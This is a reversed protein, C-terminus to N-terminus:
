LMEVRASTGRATWNEMMFKRKFSLQSVTCSKECPRLALDEMAAFSPTARDVQAPPLDCPCDICMNPCSVRVCDTSLQTACQTRLM